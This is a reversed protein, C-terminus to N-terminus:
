LSQLFKILQAKQASSLAKFNTISNKAEGTHRLIAGMFLSPAAQGNFTSSSEDFTMSLGDHMLEPRIRVGWLPPTRLKNATNQPGNQVIGDGTGVNHLLFDSFPQITKNGLAAPVILAGADVPTGPAATTFQTFHCIACGVHNFLTQGTKVDADNVLNTDRPPAKTARVFRAFLDVPAPNAPSGNPDNPQSVIGCYHTFDDNNPPFRNSIGMENVYADSSFSLLSSIQDKWGFRGVALGNNTCSIPHNPDHCELVPVMLVQGCIGNAPNPLTSDAVEGNVFLPSPDVSSFNQCQGTSVAQIASDPIAEVFGDGLLNLSTRLTRVNEADPVREYVGVDPFKFTIGNVTTQVDTAPCIARLNMLSRGCQNNISPNSCNFPVTAPEKLGTLPNTVEVGDNIPVVPSIFNGSADLHGARLERIQSIGGIVPNQHCDACAPANFTPGLGLSIPLDFSFAGQDNLFQTQGAPNPGDFGNQLNDFAAPAPTITSIQGIALNTSLYIVSLGAALLTLLLIRIAKM